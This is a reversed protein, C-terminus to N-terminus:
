KHQKDVRALYRMLDEQSRLLVHRFFGEYYGKTSKNAIADVYLNRDTPKNFVIPSYEDKLLIWNMVMRATRKNFDTYPQLELLDYHAQLARQVTPVNTDSIRYLVDELRYYISDPPPPTVNLEPLWVESQRITGGVVNTGHCIQEHVNRLHYADIPEHLNRLVYELAREMCNNRVRGDSSHLMYRQDRPILMRNEASFQRKLYQVYPLWCWTQGLKQIIINRNAEIAKKMMVCRAVRRDRGGIDTLGCM